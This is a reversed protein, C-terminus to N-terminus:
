RTEPYAIKYLDQVKKQADQWGPDKPNHYPHQRDSRIQNIQEKASKPDIGGFEEFRGGDIRKHEVLEQGLKVFARFIPESRKMLEHLHEVAEADQVYSHLGKLAVGKNYDYNPGYENKLKTELVAVTTADQDNLVKAKGTVETMYWDMLESYAKKSLGASHAKERFRKLSETDFEFDKDWKSTDYEYGDPKEPAGLKKYVKAWGEADDPKDPIQVSRGVMRQAEVYNKFLQVPKNKVAEWVGSTKYEDPIHPELMSWALPEGKPQETAVGSSPNGAEDSM